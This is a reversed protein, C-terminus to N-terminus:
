PIFGPEALGPRVSITTGTFAVVRKNQKLKFEIDYDGAERFLREVVYRRRIESQGAVYPECDYTSESITGDGWEWEISPCYYDAFDNAGGQVEVRLFVRSPAFSIPPSATLKLTPKRDDDDADQQASRVAVGALLVSAAVSVVTLRFTDVTM